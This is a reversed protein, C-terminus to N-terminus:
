LRGDTLTKALIGKVDYIITGTKKHAHLDISLFQTHAVALIIASYGDNEPYRTITTIGYERMVESPCAWPDYVDVTMGYDSLERVIDIARTNRIDPCNEKFTIGLM